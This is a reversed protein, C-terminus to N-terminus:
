SFTEHWIAAETCVDECYKEYRAENGRRSERLFGGARLGSRQRRRNGRGDILWIGSSRKRKV